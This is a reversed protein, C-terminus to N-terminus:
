DHLLRKSVEIFLRHQKSLAAANKYAIGLERQLLPDSIHFFLIDDPQKKLKLIMAPIFSVMAGTKILNVATNVNSTEFVIKPNLNLKYFYSQVLQRSNQNKQMLVFPENKFQLFDQTTMENIRTKRDVTINQLLPNSKNVAFLIKEYLLHEFIIDTYSCPLQFIAFDVKNNDLM